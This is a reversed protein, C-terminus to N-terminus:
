NASLTRYDSLSLKHKKWDGSEVFKDESVNPVYLYTSAEGWPTNITIKDYFTNDDSEKDYGELGDIRSAELPTVEYVEMIISSSGNLKLGPFGGLGYLSYIPETQFEGLYNAKGLFYDHNGMGKRLSGYVAVLIKTM